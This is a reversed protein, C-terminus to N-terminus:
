IWVSNNAFHDGINRRNILANFQAEDLHQTAQELLLVVIDKFGRWTAGHLPTVDHNNAITSNAGQCLLLQVM